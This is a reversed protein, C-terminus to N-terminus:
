SLRLGTFHCDRALWGLRSDNVVKGIRDFFLLGPKRQINVVAMQNRHRRIQNIDRSLRSGTDRNIRKIKDVAYSRQIATM